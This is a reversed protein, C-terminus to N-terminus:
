GDHHNTCHYYINGNFVMTNGPKSVKPKLKCKPIGGVTDNYPKGNKGNINVTKKEGNCNNTKINITM